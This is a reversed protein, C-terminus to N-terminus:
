QRIAALGRAAHCEDVYILGDYSKLLVEPRLNSEPDSTQWV